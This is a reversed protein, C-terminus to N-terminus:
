GFRSHGSGIVVSETITGIDVDQQQKSVRIMHLDM